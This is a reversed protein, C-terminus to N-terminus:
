SPLPEYRAVDAESADRVVHDYASGECLEEAAERTALYRVAGNDPYRGYNGAAEHSAALYEPMIEVLVLGAVLRYRGSM